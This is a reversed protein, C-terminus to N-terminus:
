LSNRKVKTNIEVGLKIPNVEYSFLYKFFFIYNQSKKININVHDLRNLGSQTQSVHVLNDGLLKRSQM